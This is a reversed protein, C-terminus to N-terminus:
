RPRSRKLISVALNRIDEPAANAPVYRAEQLRAVPVGCEECRAENEMREQWAGLTPAADSGPVLSFSRVGHNLTALDNAHVVATLGQRRVRRWNIAKKL